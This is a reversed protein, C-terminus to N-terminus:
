AKRAFGLRAGSDGLERRADLRALHAGEEDGVARGRRADAGQELFGAHRLALSCSTPEASQFLSLVIALM